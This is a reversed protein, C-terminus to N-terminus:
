SRTEQPAVSLDRELGLLTELDRDSLFPDRLLAEFAECIRSAEEETLGEAQSLGQLERRFLRTFAERELM